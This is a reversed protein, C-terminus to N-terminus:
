KGAWAPMANLYSEARKQFDVSGNDPTFQALWAAVGARVEERSKLKGNEDTCYQCYSGSSQGTLMM